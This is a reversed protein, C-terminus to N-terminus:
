KEGRLLRQDQLDIWYLSSADQALASGGECFIDAPTGGALPVRLVSDLGTIYVHSADVSLGPSSPVDPLSALLRPPQDPSLELLNGSNLTVDIVYAHGGQVAIADVSHLGQALPEVPTNKLLNKRLVAHERTAYLHGDSVALSRTEGDLIVEPTAESPLKDLALVGGLSSWYVRADDLAIGRAGVTGSVPWLQRPQGGGRPMTWVGEGYTLWYIASDDLQLGTPHPLGTALTTAPGGKKPASAILGGQKTDPDFTWVVSAGDVALDVLGRPATALPAPKKCSPLAPSSAQEPALSGPTSPSDPAPSSPDSCGALLLLACCPFAHLALKM